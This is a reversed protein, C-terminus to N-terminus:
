ASEAFLQDAIGAELTAPDGYLTQLQKARRFFLQPDAENTYGIGGHVQIAVAAARRFTECAQWKAMMALYQFERGEDRAWAAQYVLTRAGDIAVVIEALYHAIAQFGGIPRGFAKRYKAYEVAIEHVREAAGVAYAALSIQCASLSDYLQRAVCQGGNLVQELPVSLSDLRMKYLADRALNTQYKLNVASGGDAVQERTVLVALLQSRDDRALVLIADASAAYPVLHKVGNLCVADTSLRACLSLSKLDSRVGPEAAAVSVVASGSAIANLWKGRLVESGSQYLLDAALVSSVHYPSVALTRGLEEAVLASDLAGMDLGGFSEAIQIGTLGLEGMQRWFPESYGPETGELERLVSLPVYEECLKRVMDRLMGQEESFDLDM